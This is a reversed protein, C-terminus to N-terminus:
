KIRLANYIRRKCRPCRKCLDKYSEDINVLKYFYQPYIQKFDPVDILLSNHNYGRAIMEAALADHREQYGQFQIQVIPDFRGDVKYGKRFSPLFKHLEGHEGILHNKCLLATDIMWMRM